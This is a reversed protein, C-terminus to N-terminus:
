WEVGNYTVINEDWDHIDGRYFDRESSPDSNYGMYDPSHTLRDQGVATEIARLFRGEHVSRQKEMLEDASFLAAELYVEWFRDSGHLAFENEMAPLTNAGQTDPNIRYRYTLEYVQDPIPWLLLEWRTGIADNHKKVRIAAREPRASTEERQILQRIQLEGVFKIAPYLTSGDTSHTLSGYMQAFDAPLEYEWQSPNTTIIAVPRLFSWDHPYREDRILPPNYVRRRGRRISEAIKQQEAHSWSSPNPGAGIHLGVYRSLSAVGFRGDDDVWVGETTVEGSAKDIAVSAMLRDDLYAAAEQIGEGRRQALAYFCYALVTEAHERGGPPYQDADTLDISDVAYAVTIEEAAAPIPYVILETAQKNTGGISSKRLACYAPPGTKKEAKILQRLHVERTVALKTGGTRTTTPEGIRGGFDTSLPYATQGVVTNIIEYKELFSWRHPARRAAEKKTNGEEDPAEAQRAQSPWAASMFQQLGSEIISEVHSRETNGLLKADPKHGLKLAIERRLWDFTGYEVTTTIWAQNRM